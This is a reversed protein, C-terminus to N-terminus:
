SAPAAVFLANLVTSVAGEVRINRSALDRRLAAQRAVIQSRYTGAAASRVQDRTTFRQAVPPDALILVYRNPVFPPNRPTQAVAPLTMLCLGLIGLGSQHLSM